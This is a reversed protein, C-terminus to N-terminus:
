EDDDAEDEDQDTTGLRAIVMGIGRCARQCLVWETENDDPEPQVERIADRLARLKTETLTGTEYLRNADKAEASKGQGGTRLCHFCQRGVSRELSLRTPTEGQKTATRRITKPEPMVDGIEDDEVPEAKRAKKATKAKATAKEAQEQLAAQAKHKASLKEAKPAKASKKTEVTTPEAGPASKATKQTKTTKAAM